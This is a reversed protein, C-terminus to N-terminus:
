FAGVSNFCIILQNSVLVWLSRRLLASKMALFLVRYFLTPVFVNQFKYLFITCSKFVQKFSFTLDHVQSFKMKFTKLSYPFRTM